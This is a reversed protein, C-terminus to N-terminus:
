NSNVVLDERKGHPILYFEELDDPKNVRQVRTVTCFSNEILKLDKWVKITRTEGYRRSILLRTAPIRAWYKGLAPTIDATNTQGPSDWRTISNVTIVVAQCERTLFRCVEALDDLEYTTENDGYSANRTVKFIVAPLSDIIVLLTKKEEFSADGPERKCLTVLQRLARILEHSSRAQCIKTGRLADEIVKPTYNRAKMIQEYRMRSFDKKTDFYWVVGSRGAVNAAVTLCLQTKGSATPGCFECLQGPYLGGKLLEDLSTVNTSIVNSRELTLQQKANRKTGGFKKLIHQTIQLIDTHTLGTFSALKIPDASVFDVVTVVNRRRLSETVTKSLSPHVDADLKTM